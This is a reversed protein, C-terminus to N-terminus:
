QKGLQNVDWVLVTGDQSGSALRKGDQSLALSTIGHRHGPLELRM